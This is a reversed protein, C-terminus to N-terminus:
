EPPECGTGVARWSEVGTRLARYWNGTSPRPIEEVALIRWTSGVKITVAHLGVECYCNLDANIAEIESGDHSGSWNEQDASEITIDTGSVVSITGYVITAGSGTAFSVRVRANAGTGKDDGVVLFGTAGKALKWSDAEPGWAESTAPTEADNFLAYCNNAATARGIKDDAIPFPSNLLYIAGAGDPKTVKVYDRGSRGAEWGSVQMVAFGPITEGSENLVDVNYDKLANV